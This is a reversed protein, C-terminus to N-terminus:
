ALVHGQTSARRWGHTRNLRRDWARICHESGNTNTIEQPDRLVMLLSDHRANEDRYWAPLYATASFGLNRLGDIFDPKDASAFLFQQPVHRLQRSSDRVFDVADQASGGSPPVPLEICSPRVDPTEDWFSSVSWAKSASIWESAINRKRALAKELGAHSHAPRARRITRNPNIGLCAIHHERIGNSVHMAGDHGCPELPVIAHHNGLRVVSPTRSFAVVLDCQKSTIVHRVIQDHLSHALRYSAKDPHVVLCGLEIVGAAKLAKGGVCGIVEGNKVAVLMHVRGSTLLEVVKDEQACEHSCTQYARRILRAIAGADDPTAVRISSSGASDSRNETLPASPQFEVSQGADMDLLNLM